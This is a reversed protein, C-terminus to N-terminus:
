FDCILLFLHIHHSSLSLSLLCWWIHLLSDLFLCFHWLMQSLNLSMTTIISSVCLDCLFFADFHKANNNNCLILFLVRVPQSQTTTISYSYLLDTKNELNQLCWYLLDVTNFLGVFLRSFFDQIFFVALGQSEYSEDEGGQRSQSWGDLVKVWFKKGINHLWLQVRWFMSSGSHSWMQRCEISFSHVRVDSTITWPPATM